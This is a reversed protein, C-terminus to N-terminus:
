GATLKKVPKFWSYIEEGAGYLASAAGPGYQLLNSYLNGDAAANAKDLATRRQIEAVRRNDEGAMIAKIISSADGSKTLEGGYASLVNALNATDFGQKLQYNKVDQLSAEKEYSTLNNFERDNYSAVRNNYAQESETERGTLNLVRGIANEKSGADAIANRFGVNQRREAESQRLATSFRNEGQEFGTRRVAKERDIRQRDLIANFLFRNEGRDFDTKRAAENALFNQQSEVLRQTERNEALTAETSMRRGLDAVASAEIGSGSIGRKSFFDALRKEEDQRRIEQKAQYKDTFKKLDEAIAQRTQGLTQGATYNSKQADPYSSPSSYYKSSAYQPGAVFNQNNYTPNAVDVNPYYKKLNEINSVRNAVTSQPISRYKPQKITPTPTKLNGM